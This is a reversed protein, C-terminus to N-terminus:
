TVTNQLLIDQWTSGEQVHNVTLNLLTSWSIISGFLYMNTDMCCVCFHHQPNCYTAYAGLPVWINGKDISFYQICKFQSKHIASSKFQLISIPLIVIYISQSLLKYQGKNASTSWHHGQAASAIIIAAFSSTLFWLKFLLLDERQTYGWGLGLGWGQGGGYIYTVCNCITLLM